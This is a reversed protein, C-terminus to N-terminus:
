QLMGGFYGEKIFSSNNAEDFVLTYAKDICPKLMESYIGQVESDTSLLIVQASANPFYNNILAQRHANDLRAMPTDIIIPLNKRSCLGLGWLMAIVLLQKEGASFNFRNVEIGASDYYHFDLSNPDICIEDILEHKSVLQKFCSTMTQALYRTKKKQMRAKYENLVSVMRTCYVLIRKTDDIDEMSEIMSDVYKARTRKAEELQAEQQALAIESIRYREKATALEATLNLITEYSKAADTENVSISLYNDVDVIEAAIARRKALAKEAEVKRRDGLTVCHTRLQSIAYDTLNYVFSEDKATNRVYDIFHSYHFAENGMAEYQEFLKPLQELATKLSKQEYEKEAITLISELLPLVMLLPLDGSIAELVSSTADILQQELRERKKLLEKRNLALNGGIAAFQDEANKLKNTIQKCKISLKALEEINVKIASEAEGIRSEWDNVESYILHNKLIKRKDKAVKEIDLIVKDITNIGLLARISNKMGTNSSDATALESITEGDFFFFPAIASPLMEEIFLDWNESLLQDPVNNKEVVTNLTAIPIDSQWERRVKYLTTDDDSSLEFTLEVWAINTRDKANVLRAIYKPFAINSERRAFSRKGYLALLIAELITTKGCGNLGGILIVPKENSFILENAGAYVGFNYMVLRIIKM